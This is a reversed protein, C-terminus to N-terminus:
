VRSTGYLYTSAPALGNTGNPATAFENASAGPLVTGGAQAVAAKSVQLNYPSANSSLFPPVASYDRDHNFISNRHYYNITGSVNTTGDGVGFLLSTNETGSDKDTTNGYEFKAEAGRYDHFRKINVVGAVADAGYTTSAGDKLIEISQISSE